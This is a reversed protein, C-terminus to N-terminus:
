GLVYKRNKKKKLFLLYIWALLLNRPTWTFVPLILWNKLNYIEFNHVGYDFFPTNAYRKWIKQKNFSSLVKTSTNFNM